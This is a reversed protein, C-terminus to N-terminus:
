KHRQNEVEIKMKRNGMGNDKAYPSHYISIHIFILLLFFWSVFLRFNLFDNVDKSAEKTKM